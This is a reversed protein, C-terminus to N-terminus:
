FAMDPVKTAIPKLSRAWFSTVVVTVLVDLVVIVDVDTDVVVAVEVDTEVNVACPEVVVTVESTVSSTPNDAVIVYAATATATIAIIAAATSNM